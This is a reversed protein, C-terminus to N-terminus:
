GRKLSKRIIAVVAIFAFFTILGAVPHAFVALGAAIAIATIFPGDAAVAKVKSLISQLVCMIVYGISVALFALAIAAFLHGTVLFVVIMMLIYIIIIIDGM